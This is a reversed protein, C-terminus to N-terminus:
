SSVFKNKNLLNVIKVCPKVNEVSYQMRSEANKPGVM